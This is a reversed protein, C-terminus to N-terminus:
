RHNSDSLYTSHARSGIEFRSKTHHENTAELAEIRKILETTEILKAVGGLATLLTTAQGPTLRGDATATIIGEARDVLSGTAMEPISVPEEASKIPPSVRELVLRAAQVDGNRAATVVVQIVDEAHEGLARTIRQRKDPCGKPRGAPNGSKGKQFRGKIEAM